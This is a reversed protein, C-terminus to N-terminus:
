NLSFNYGKERTSFRNIKLEDKFLQMYRPDYEIWVSPTDESGTDREFHAFRGSLFGYIKLAEGADLPAGLRGDSVIGIELLDFGAPLNPDSAAPTGGAAITTTGKVIFLCAQGTAQSGNLNVVKNQITFPPTITLNGEVFVLAKTNCVANSSITLDGSTAYIPKPNNAPFASALNGSLSAPASAPAQGVNVQALKKLYGYWAEFGSFPSPNLGSSRYNYLTFEEYSTNSVQALKNIGTSYTYQSLDGKSPNTVFYGQKPDGSNPRGYKVYVTGGSTSIWPNISGANPLVPTLNACNTVDKGTLGTQELCCLYLPSDGSKKYAINGSPLSIGKGKDFDALQQATLSLAGPELNCSNNAFSVYGTVQQAKIEAQYRVLFITSLSFALLFLVIVLGRSHPLKSNKM